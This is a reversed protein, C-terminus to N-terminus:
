LPLVEQRLRKVAIECYKPEIEIGIARRRLNKAAVLTTGSGAFPDLIRDNCISFFRILRRLLEEPKQTPHDVGERMHQMVRSVDICDPLYGWEGERKSKERHLWFWPEWRRAIGHGSVGSGNPKYWIGLHRVNWGEQQARLGFVNLRWWEAAWFVVAYGRLILPLRLASFALEIAQEPSLATAGLSRGLMSHGRQGNQRPKSFDIGVGYDPDTILVECEVHPLVQRCDGCYLTIGSEDYFLFDRLSSM